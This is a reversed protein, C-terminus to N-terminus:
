ANDTRLRHAAVRAAALGATAGGVAYIGIRLSRRNALLARVLQPGFMKVLMAGTRADVRLAQLRKGRKTKAM